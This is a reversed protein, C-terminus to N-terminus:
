HLASGSCEAGGRILKIRMCAKGLFIASQEIEAVSLFPWFIKQGGNGASYTVTYVSAGSTHHSQISVCVCVCVDVIARRRM